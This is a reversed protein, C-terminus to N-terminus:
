RFSTMFADQTAGNEHMGSRQIRVSSADQSVGHRWLSARRLRVRPPPLVFSPPASDFRAVTLIRLAGGLFKLSDTCSAEPTTKRLPTLFRLPTTFAFNYFLFASICSM